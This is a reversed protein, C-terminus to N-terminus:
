SFQLIQLHPDTARCAAASIAASARAVTASRSRKMMRDTATVGRPDHEHKPRLPYRPILHVNCLDVFPCSWSSMRIAIEGMQAFAQELM